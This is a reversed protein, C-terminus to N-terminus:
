WSRKEQHLWTLWCTNGWSHSQTSKVFKCRKEEEPAASKKPLSGRVFTTDTGKKKLGGGRGKGKGFLDGIWSLNTYPSFYIWDFQPKPNRTNTKKKKSVPYRPPISIQHSSVRLNGSNPVPFGGEKRKKKEGLIDGHNEAFVGGGGRGLM